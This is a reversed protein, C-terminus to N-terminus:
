EKFGELRTELLEWPIYAASYQCRTLEDVIRTAASSDTSHVIINRIKPQHEEIWAVVDIGCGLFLINIFDEAELAKICGAESNVIKAKPVKMKFTRKKQVDKDLFIIM